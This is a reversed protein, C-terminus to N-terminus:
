QSLDEVNLDVPVLSPVYAFGRQDRMRGGRKLVMKSTEMSVSRKGHQKTSKEITSIYENFYAGFLISLDPKSIGRWSVAFVIGDSNSYERITNGDAIMEHVTYKESTVMPKQSAKLKAVDINITTTAEGLTAFAPSVCLIFGTWVVLVVTIAM